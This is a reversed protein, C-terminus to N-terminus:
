EGRPLRHFSPLCWRRPGTSCLPQPRGWATALCNTVYLCTICRGTVAAPWLSGGSHMEPDGACRRCANVWALAMFCSKGSSGSIRLGDAHVHGAASLASSWLPAACPRTSAPAAGQMEPDGSRWSIAAVHRQGASFRRRRDRLHEASASRMEPSVTPRGGTQGAARM